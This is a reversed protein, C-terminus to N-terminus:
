GVMLESPRTPGKIIAPVLALKLRSVKGAATLRHLLQCAEASLTVFELAMRRSWLLPFM